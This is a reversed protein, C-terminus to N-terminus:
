VYSERAALKTRESSKRRYSMGRWVAIVSFRPRAKKLSSESARESLPLRTEVSKVTKRLCIM